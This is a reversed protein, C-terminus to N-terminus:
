MDSMCYSKNQIQQTMKLFLNADKGTQIIMGSFTVQRIYGNKRKDSRSKAEYELIAQNTV